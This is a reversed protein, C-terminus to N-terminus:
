LLKLYSNSLAAIQRGIEKKKFDFKYVKAYKYPTSRNLSQRLNELNRGKKAKMWQYGGDPYVVKVLIGTKAYTSQM